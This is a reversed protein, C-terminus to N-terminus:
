INLLGLEKRLRECREYEDKYPQEETWPRSLKLNHAPGGLLNNEILFNRNVLSMASISCGNAITVKKAIVANTGIFVNDGIRKPNGDACSCRYLCCYNGIKTNGNIIIGCRHAIRCGYGLTNIPIDFGNKIGLRNYRTKYWLWM